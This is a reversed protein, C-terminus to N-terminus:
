IVLYLHVLFGAHCLFCVSHVVQYLDAGRYRAVESLMLYPLYKCAFNSEVPPKSIHTNMNIVECLAM